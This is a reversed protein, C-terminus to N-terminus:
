FIGHSVRPPPPPPQLTRASLGPKTALGAYNGSSGTVYTPYNGGAFFGGGTEDYGFSYPNNYRYTPYVTESSPPQQQVTVSAPPPRSKAYHIFFFPTATIPTVLILNSIAMIRPLIQYKM